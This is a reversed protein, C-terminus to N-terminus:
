IQNLEPALYPSINDRILNQIEDSLKSRRLLLNCQTQPEYGRLKASFIIVKIPTLVRKLKLKKLEDSDNENYVRDFDIFCDIVMKELNEIQKNFLKMLLSGM